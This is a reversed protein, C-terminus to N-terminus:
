NKFFFGHTAIHIIPIHMGSLSKFAEESGHIDSYVTTSVNHNQMLNNIQNIEDKTGPLYNWGTRNTSDAVFGRTAIYKANHFLMSNAIMDTTDIDYRIGGFLASSSYDVNKTTKCLQRSSSVRNLNYKDCAMIGTSDKFIEINMQHFLGTPSFYVNDGNNIYNDIASWVFQYYQNNTQNIQYDNFGLPHIEDSSGLEVCLPTEWNKRIIFAFYGGQPQGSNDAFEVVVDNKGLHNVISDFDNELISSRSHYQNAHEMILRENADIKKGISDIEVWIEETFPKSKLQSMLLKDKQLRMYDEILVNDNSSFIMDRFGIESSLLLGKSLLIANYTQKTLDKMKNPSTCSFLALRAKTYLSSSNGWYSEKQSSSLHSFGQKITAMELEISRQLYRLGEEAEGNATSLIFMAMFPDIFVPSTFGYIKELIVIQKKKLDYAKQLNGMKFYVMSLSGLVGAYYANEEGLLNKLIELSQNGHMLSNQYDRLKSYVVAINELTIAYNISSEGYLFKNATLAKNYYLIAKAYDNLSSYTGALNNYLNSEITPFNEKSDLFFTECKQLAELAIEFQGIDSYDVSVNILSQIYDPHHIGLLKERISLVKMNTELAMFPDEMGSYLVALNSLIIAYEENYEGYFSKIKEAQEKLITIATNYVGQKFYVQSLNIIAASISPHTEELLQREIALSHTLASIAEPYRGLNSYYSGINNLCTAYTMNNEGFFSLAIASAEEAYEIATQYDGINGYDTSLNLLATINKPHNPDFLQKNIRLAEENYEISKNVQGSHSYSVALNTLYLSYDPNLEGTLQKQINVAEEGLSIAKQYNSIHDYSIALTNLSNCYKPHMKGVVEEILNLSKHGWLIANQYDGYDDYYKSLNGYYTALNLDKKETISDYVTIVKTQDEIAKNFNGLKNEYLAIMNLCAICNVSFEGQTQKYIDYAKKENSLAESFKNLNNQSMSISNLLDACVVSEKGFVIQAKELSQEDIQIASNFDGIQKYYYAVIQSIPFYGSLTDEWADLTTERAKNFWYLADESNNSKTGLDFFTWTVDSQSYCVTFHLLIGLIVLLRKM